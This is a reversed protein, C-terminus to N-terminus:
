QFSNIHSGLTVLNFGSLLKYERIRHQTKYLFYSKKFFDYLKSPFFTWARNNEMSIELTFRDTKYAIWLTILHLILFVTLPIKKVQLLFVRVGRGGAVLFHQMKQSTYNEEHHQGRKMFSVMVDLFMCISMKPRMFNLNLLCEIQHLSYDGFCTIFIGKHKIFILCHYFM